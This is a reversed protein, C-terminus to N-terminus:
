NTDVRRLENFFVWGMTLLCAVAGTLMAGAAGAIGFWSIMPYAALLTSVGTAVEGKFNAQSLQMANLGNSCTLALSTVLTNLGLIVLVMSADSFKPKFIALLWPGALVFVLLMCGLIVGYVLSSGLTERILGSKGGQNFARVARPQLLNNLGRVFVWSLGALTACVSLEGAAARSLMAAVVWPMVLQCGQGILRGYVLWRSFRWHKSWTSKASALSIEIQPRFLLWWSLSGAACAVAIAVFSTTVSLTGSSSLALLGGLQLIMVVVDLVLAQQLQFKAFCISRLFDRLMFPIMAACLALTGTTMASLSESALLYVSYGLVLATSIVALLQQHLLVSGLLRAPKPEARIM